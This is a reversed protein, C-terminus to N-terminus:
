RRIHTTVDDRVEDARAARERELILGPQQHACSSCYLSATSYVRYGDEQWIYRDCGPCLTVLDHCAGCLPVDKTQTGTTIAVLAIANDGCEACAAGDPSDNEQSHLSM